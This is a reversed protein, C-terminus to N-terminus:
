NKMRWKIMRGLMEKKPHRRNLMTLGMLYEIATKYHLTYASSASYTYCFDALPIHKGLEKNGDLLHSVREAMEFAQQPQSNELYLNALNAFAKIQSVSDKKAATVIQEVFEDIPYNKLFSAAYIAETIKDYAYNQAVLPSDPFQRRLKELEALRLNNMGLKQASNILTIAAHYDESNKELLIKAIGYSLRYNNTENFHFALASTLDPISPEHTQLYDRVLLHNTTTKLREDNKYTVTSIQNLYFSKPAEFELRPHLESNVSPYGSISYFGEDSFNECSLFTLLNEIKIKDLDKKVKELQLKQELQGTNLTIPKKSGVM